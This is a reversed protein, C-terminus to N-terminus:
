RVPYTCGLEIGITQNFWANDELKTPKRMAAKFTLSAMVLVILTMLVFNILDKM